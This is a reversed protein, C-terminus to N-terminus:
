DEIDNTIVFRSSAYVGEIKMCERRASSTFLSNHTVRRAGDRILTRSIQM